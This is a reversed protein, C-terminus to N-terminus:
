LFRTGILNSAHTVFAGVRSKQFACLFRLAFSGFGDHIQINEGRQRAVLTKVDPSTQLLAQLDRNKMIKEQEVADTSELAGFGDHIQIDEGRQRAVLAKVAAEEAAKKEEAPSTQLLAQLDRNKKIKEKEVADSSELAGFGDHIQINEGRQRAVLEKVDPSTQTQLLAQLDRNKM